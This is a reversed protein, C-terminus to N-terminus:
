RAGLHPNTDEDLAFSCRYYDATDRWVALIPEQIKTVLGRATERDNAQCAFYAFAQQNWEDPYRALIDEFGRKMSPWDVASDVFLRKGYEDQSAVWYIRAYLMYQDRPPALAMVRRAYIELGQADGGWKPAFYRVAAFYLPYYGPFRKIGEDHLAIFQELPWSREIALHEMLEYWYPDTSVVAKHQQLYDIAQQQYTNFPGWDQDKVTNAYGSGRISWAHSSLMRAMALHAAPSKPHREIWTRVIKERGAWYAPDRNTISFARSIGAYYTSLKWVGSGFHQGTTRYREGLRELTAFDQKEFLETAQRTVAHRDTLEDARISTAAFLLVLALLSRMIGNM